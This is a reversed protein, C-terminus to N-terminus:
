VQANRSFSDVGERKLIGRCEPIFVMVPVVIVVKSTM